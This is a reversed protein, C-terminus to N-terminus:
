TGTKESPRAPSAFGILEAAKKTRVEFGIAVAEISRLSIWRTRSSNRTPLMPMSRSNTSARVTRSRNSEISARNKAPTAHQKRPDAEVTHEIIQHVLPALDTDADGLSDGRPDASKYRRRVAHSILVILIRPKKSVSDEKIDAPGKLKKLTNQVALGIHSGEIVQGPEPAPSASSLTVCGRVIASVHARAWDVIFNPDAGYGVIDGLCVVRDYQGRADKLVADLAERNGHIDSVILFKVHHDM